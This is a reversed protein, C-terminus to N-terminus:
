FFFLCGTLHFLSLLAGHTHTHNFERMLIVSKGFVCATQKRDTANDPGEAARRQCRTKMVACKGNNAREARESVNAKKMNFIEWHQSDFWAWHLVAHPAGPWTDGARWGFFFVGGEFFGLLLLETNTGGSRIGNWPKVLKWLFRSSPHCPTRIRCGNAAASIFQKKAWVSYILPLKMIM